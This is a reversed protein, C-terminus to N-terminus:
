FFYYYVYFIFHHTQTTDIWKQVTAPWTISSVKSMYLRWVKKQIKLVIHGHIM